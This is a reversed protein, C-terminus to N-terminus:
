SRFHMRDWQFEEGFLALIWSKAGGNQITSLLRAAQGHRWITCLSWRDPLTPELFSISKLLVTTIWRVRPMGNGWFICPIDSNQNSTTIRTTRVSWCHLSELFVVFQSPLRSAHLSPPSTKALRWSSSFRHLFSVFPFDHDQYGSCQKVVGVRKPFLLKSPFLCSILAM